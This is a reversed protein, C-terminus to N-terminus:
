GFHVCSGPAALCTPRTRRAALPCWRFLRFVPMLPRTPTDLIKGFDIVNESLTPRYVDYDGGAFVLVPHGATLAKAANDPTAHVIGLHLLLEAQPDHFIADHALSHIPREHGFRDYYDVVFM